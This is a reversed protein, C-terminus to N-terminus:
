YCRLPVGALYIYGTGGSALSGSLANSPPWSTSCADITHRHNSSWNYPQGNRYIRANEARWPNTFGSYWNSNTNLNEAFISTDTSLALNGGTASRDEICQYTGPDQNDRGCMFWRNNTNAITFWYSRGGRYPINYDRLAYNTATSAWVVRGAGQNFVFGNQLFYGTVTRVNNMFLSYANQNAGISSPAYMDVAQANDDTYSGADTDEFLAYGPMGSGGKFEQWDSGTKAPRGKLCEGGNMALRNWAENEALLDQLKTDPGAYQM